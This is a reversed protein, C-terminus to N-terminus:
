KPPLPRRGASGIRFRFCSRVIRSMGGTVSLRLAAAGDPLDTAADPCKGLKGLNGVGGAVFFSAHGFTPGISATLHKLSHRKRADREKKINSFCRLLIVVWVSWRHDSILSRRIMIMVGLVGDNVDGFGIVRHDM